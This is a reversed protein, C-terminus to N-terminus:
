RQLCCSTVAAVAADPDDAMFRVCRVTATRRGSTLTVPGTLTVEVTTEGSMALALADGDPCWGSSAAGRRRATVDAIRDAPVQVDLWDGWRLRLGQACALHPRVANGGVLALLVLLTWVGLVLLAWRVREWPV